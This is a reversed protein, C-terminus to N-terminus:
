EGFGREKASSLANLLFEGREKPSAGIHPPLPEQFNKLAEPSINPGPGEMCRARWNKVTQYSAKSHGAAKGAKMARAVKQAAEDSAQGGEMLENM